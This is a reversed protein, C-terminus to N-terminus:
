FHTKIEADFIHYTAFPFYILGWYLVMTGAMALMVLWAVKKYGWGYLVRGHIPIAYLCWSVAFLYEVPDWVWWSGHLRISYYSGIIFMITQAFFGNLLMKYTFRDLANGQSDSAPKRRILLLAAGIFSFTYFGYAIWAFLAHFYVWYSQESIILPKGTRDFRLGYFLTVLAFPVIFGAFEAKRDILASFLILTWSAALAAEFTGFMPPHGTNFWRIGIYTGEAFLIALVCPFYFKMAMNKLFLLFGSFIATGIITFFLLAEIGNM